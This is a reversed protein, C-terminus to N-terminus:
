PHSVQGVGGWVKKAGTHSQTIHSTIYKLTQMADIGFMAQKEERSVVQDRGCMPVELALKLQRYLGRVVM